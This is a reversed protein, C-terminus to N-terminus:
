FVAFLELKENALLFLYSTSAAGGGVVYSHKIFMMKRCPKESVWFVIILM